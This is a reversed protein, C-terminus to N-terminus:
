QNMIIVFNPKVVYYTGGSFTFGFNLDIGAVKGTKADQIYAGEADGIFTWLYKFGNVGNLMDKATSSKGQTWGAFHGMHEEFRNSWLFPDHFGHETYLNLNPFDSYHFDNDDLWQFFFQKGASGIQNMYGPLGNYTSNSLRVQFYFHYSSVAQVIIDNTVTENSKAITPKLINQITQKQYSAMNLALAPSNAIALAGLITITKKM